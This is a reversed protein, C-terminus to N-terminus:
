RMMEGAVERQRDEEGRDAEERDSGGEGLGSFRDLLGLLEKLAAFLEVLAAFEVTGGFGKVLGLLEMGGEVVGVGETDGVEVGELIVLRDGGKFGGNLDIWITFGGGVGVGVHAFGLQIELL